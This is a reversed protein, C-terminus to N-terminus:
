NKVLSWSVGRADFDDCLVEFVQYGHYQRFTFGGLDTEEGPWVPYSPSDEGPMTIELPLASGMGCGSMDVVGDPCAGGQPEVSLYFGLFDQALGPFGSTGLVVMHAGDATVVAMVGYSVWAGSALEVMYLRGPGSIGDMLADVDVDPSALIQVGFYPGYPPEVTLYEGDWGLEGEVITGDPGAAWVDFYLSEEGVEGCAGPDTDDDGTDDDGTDDDGTADDDGTDDDGTDDDGTVDDDDTILTGGPDPCGFLLLSLSLLILVPTTRM